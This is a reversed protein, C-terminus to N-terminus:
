KNYISIVQEIIYDQDSLSLGSSSPLCIGHNAIRESNNFKNGKSFKAYAPQMHLPHFFERTEIRMKKLQDMFVLKDMRSNIIFGFLWSSNVSEPHKKQIKIDINSFASIYRETIGLKLEIFNELCELQAVGIAAQINTMRYNYGIVENWYRNNKSMGHDRLIVAKNAVEEDKFLVMGGEGTTIIKNGFFSFISADGHTGVLDGNYTSGLAEASDEILLLNYKDALQRFQTINCPQGYLHVIIIARTKNTIFGEVTNASINWSDEGVDVLIPTAGCHFVANITAAFTLDPVIVEDNKGVGLSELALHLATTGSSTSVSPLNNHLSSFMSEFKNVFKGKSSVWGTNICEEVYAMENGNLM